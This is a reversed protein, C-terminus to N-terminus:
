ASRRTADPVSRGTAERELPRLRPRLNELVFVLGIVAMMAALFVVAPRTKSRAVAIGAVRPQNLVRLVVREDAPLRLADQQKRVYTILARSARRAMIVANKPTTALGSVEVLPRPTGLGPTVAASASVGGQLPGDKRMLRQLEDSTAVDAYLTAYNAFRDPDNLVPVYTPEGNAQRGVPIVKTYVSRVLPFGGQTIFIRATSQWTQQERYTISPRGDKFSVRAVSVVTLMLALLSGAFVILRFRWLVRGYLRLDV